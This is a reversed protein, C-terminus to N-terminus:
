PRREYGDVCVFGQTTLPTVIRNLNSVTNAFFTIYEDHDAYGVFSKPAPKFAFDLWDALAARLLTAGEREGTATITTDRILHFASAHPPLIAPVHKPDFVYGDITVVLENLPALASVIVGVFADLNKLPTHFTRQFRWPTRWFRKILGSSSGVTM